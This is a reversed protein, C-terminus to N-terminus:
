RTVDLGLGRKVAAVFDEDNSGFLSVWEEDSIQTRWKLVRPAHPGAPYRLQGSNGEIIQRIQEGVVYPSTPDKLFAAFLAALPRGQPYASEPQGTLIKQAMPTAIVGPEVLAVRINFAKVEQALCESM